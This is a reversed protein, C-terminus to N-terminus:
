EARYLFVPGVNSKPKDIEVPTWGPLKFAYSVIRCGVKLERKFKPELKAMAKPTLFCTVVDASSLDVQFFDRYEVRAQRRVGALGMRLLAVLYPLISFEYGVSRAGFERAAIILFRGDGAGLDVVLEGPKVAALKLMRRVDRQFTPVYPAAKWGALAATLLTLFLLGVLAYFVVDNVM